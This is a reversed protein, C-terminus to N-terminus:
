KIEEAFDIFDRLVMYETLHPKILERVDRDAIIKAM